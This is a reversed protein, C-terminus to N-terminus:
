VIQPPPGNLSGPAFRWPANAGTSVLRQHRAATVSVPAFGTTVSQHRLNRMIRSDYPEGHEGVPGKARPDGRAFPWEHPAFLPVGFSVHFPVGIAPSCVGIM